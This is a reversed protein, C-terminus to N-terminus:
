DNSKRPEYCEKLKDIAHVCRMVVCSEIPIEAHICDDCSVFDKSIENEMVIIKRQYDDEGPEEEILKELVVDTDNADIVGQVLYGGFPSPIGLGDCLHINPCNEYAIDLLYQALNEDSMHRIYDIIMM